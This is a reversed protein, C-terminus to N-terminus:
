QFGLGGNIEGDPNVLREYETLELNRAIENNRRMKMM